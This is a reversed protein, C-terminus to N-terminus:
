VRGAELVTMRAELDNIRDAAAVLLREINSPWEKLRREAEKQGLIQATSQALIQDFEEATPTYTPVYNPHAPDIM